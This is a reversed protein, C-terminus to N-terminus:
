FGNWRSGGNSVFTNSSQPNGGAPLTWTQDATSGFTDSGATAVTCTATGVNIIKAMYGSNSAAPLTLTMPSSGNCEVMLQKNSNFDGTLITYDATKTLVSMASGSGGSASLTGGSFTLGSGITVNSIGGSGNGYLISSGSTSATALTGFNTGNTKTCTIANSGSTTCDGSIEAASALNGSSDWRGLGASSIATDQLNSFIGKGAVTIRFWAQTEDAAKTGRLFDGTQSTLEQFVMSHDTTRGAQNKVIVAADPHGLAGNSLAVQGAGNVSWGVVNQLDNYVSYTGGPAVYHSWRRAGGSGQGELVLSGGLIADASNKIHVAGLPSNMQIGLRLNTADWFFNSNDQAITTGNAFLVSGATYPGLVAQYDTGAVASSFGGSGNGKLIASGSTAPAYDTGSVASSFGGSGNGKLISSGSTAPAYDTGSVAAGPVGSSMKVIGNTTYNTQVGAADMKCLGASHLGAPLWKVTTGSWIVPADALALTPLLALILAFLKM